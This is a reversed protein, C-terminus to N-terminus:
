TTGLMWGEEAVAQRREARPLGRAAAPDFWGGLEPATLGAIVRVTRRVQAADRVEASTHGRRGPERRRPSAVFLSPWVEAIVVRPTAPSTGDRRGTPRLPDPTFGCEMPWVVASPGLDARLRLLHPLGTLVQGGVSGKGCLHWGSAPRRGGTRLRETLRLEPLPNALLSPPVENRVPLSTLEEHRGGRPRGWFLRHGTRRNVLDAAEFRNNRNDPGDAVLETVTHWVDCWARHHSSSRWVSRLLRAFGAPYGFSFDFGLLVTRDRELAVDLLRRVHDVGSERTDPNALSVRWGDRPARRGHAVWVSDQGRVPTSAASWDVMVIDDFCPAPVPAAGAAPDDTL